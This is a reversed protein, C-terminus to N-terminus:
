QQQQLYANMQPAWGEHLVVLFSDETNEEGTETNTVRSFSLAPTGGSIPSSATVFTQGDPLLRGRAFDINFIKIQVRVINADANDPVFQLPMGAAFAGCLFEAFTLTLGPYILTVDQLDKPLGAKDALADCKERIFDETLRKPQAPTGSQYQTELFHAARAEPLAPMGPNAAEAGTVGGIFVALVTALGMASPAPYKHIHQM